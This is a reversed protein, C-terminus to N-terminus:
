HRHSAELQKGLWKWIAQNFELSPPTAALIAHFSTLPDGPKLRTRPEPDWMMHHETHFQVGLVNPFRRHEIDEVVKSKVSLNLSRFNYSRLRDMPHLRRYPNNHWREPGLAIM